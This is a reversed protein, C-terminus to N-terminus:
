YGLFPDYARTPFHPALHSLPNKGLECGQIGAARIFFRSQGEPFAEVWEAFRDPHLRAWAQVFESSHGATFWGGEFTDELHPALLAEAIEPVYRALHKALEGDRHQPWGLSTTPPERHRLTFDVLEPVRDPQVIEVAPLIAAVRRVLHSNTGSPGGTLNEIALRMFDHSQDPDVGFLYAAIGALESASSCGKRGADEAERVEGLADTLSRPRPDLTPHPGDYKALGRASQGDVMSLVRAYEKLAFNTKDKASLIEALRTGRHFCAEALEVNGRLYARRACAALYSLLLPVDPMREVWELHPDFPGELESAALFCATAAWRPDELGRALSMWELPRKARLAELISRRRIADDKSKQPPLGDHHAAARLPDVITTSRLLAAEVWPEDLTLADRRLGELLIEELQNWRGDERSAYNPRHVDTLHVEIGDWRLLAVAPVRGAATVLAIPLQLDVTSLRFRGEDDTVTEVARALNGRHFVRAGPIPKGGSEVVRGRRPSLVSLTISAPPEGARAVRVWRERPLIGDGEFRLLARDGAVATTRLEGFGLTVRVRDRGECMSLPLEHLASRLDLLEVRCAPPYLGLPDRVAVRVPALDNEHLRVELLGEPPAALRAWAAETGSEVRLTLPYHPRVGPLSFEGDLDTLTECRVSDHYTKLDNGIEVAVWAGPAPSGNELLVRGKLDLSERLELAIVFTDAMDRFSESRNWIPHAALSLEDFVVSEPTELIRVRMHGTIGRFSFRGYRDTLIEEFTRFGGPEGRQQSYTQLALRVGDVGRPNDGTTQVSGYGPVTESLTIELVELGGEAVGPLPEDRTGCRGYTEYIGARLNSGTANEISFACHGAPLTVGFRGTKDATARHLNPFPIGEATELGRVLLSFGAPDHGAPAVFRGEVRASGRLRISLEREGDVRVLQVGYPSRISFLTRDPCRLHVLGNANTKITAKSLAPPLNVVREPLSLRVLGVEIGESTTGGSGQVQLTREPADMRIEWRQGRVVARLSPLEKLIWGHKAHHIIALRTHARTPAAPVPSVRFSGDEDTATRFLETASELAGVEFWRDSSCRESLVQAAIVVEAGVVPLGRSDVVYGEIGAGARQAPAAAVLGLLVLESFAIM